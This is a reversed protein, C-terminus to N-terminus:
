AYTVLGSDIAGIFEPPRPVVRVTLGFAGPDRAYVHAKYIWRNQELAEYQQMEIMEPRDLTHTEDVGGWAMHVCVEHPSLDGLAIYANVSIVTEGPREPRAEVGEFSEVHDVRVGPWAKLMSTKWAAIHRAAAYSDRMLVHGAEAAPRYLGNLYERLMRSALVKPGLTRWTHQLRSVWAQPVGQDDRQYFMPIVSSALVDYLESAERADREDPNEIDVTPIIWGNLGDHWEDWWGDLVSLNLAGNLAAKMGSTGSAELPRVPNNMWVDCGAYLYRAMDMDYDPLFVIRHRVDAGDAFAVLDRILRKGEDDAPHAKGAVVIQVPHEPHLLLGRLRDPESLM